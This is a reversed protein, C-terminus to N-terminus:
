TKKGKRTKTVINKQAQGNKKERERAYLVLGLAGFHRYANKKRKMENVADVCMDHTKVNEM